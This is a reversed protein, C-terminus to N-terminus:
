GQYEITLRKFILWDLVVSYIFCGEPHIQRSLDWSGIKPHLICAGSFYGTDLLYTKIMWGSITWEYHSYTHKYRRTIRPVSQLWTQSLKAIVMYEFEANNTLQCDLGFVFPTLHFEGIWFQKRNFSFFIRTVNNRYCLAVKLWFM